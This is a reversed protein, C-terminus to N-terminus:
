GAAMVSSAEMKAIKLLNEFAVDDVDTSDINNSAANETAILNDEALRITKM